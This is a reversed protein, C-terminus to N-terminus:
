YRSSIIREVNQSVVFTQTNKGQRWRCGDRTSELPIQMAFGVNSRFRESRTLELLHDGPNYAVSLPTDPGFQSTLPEM